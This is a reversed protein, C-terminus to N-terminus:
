PTWPAQPIAGKFHRELAINKEAADLVQSVSDLDTAQYGAKELYGRALMMPDLRPMSRPPTKPNAMEFRGLEAVATFDTERGQANNGVPLRIPPLKDPNRVEPTVRAEREAVMKGLEAALVAALESNTPCKKVLGETVYILSSDVHFIELQDVGITGFLPRLAIQKNAELVEKGIKDVRLSVDHAAPAYNARTPAPAPAEVGFPNGSVLATTRDGELQLPFCGGIVLMVLLMVFRAM